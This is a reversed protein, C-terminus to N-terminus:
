AEIGLDEYEPVQGLKILTITNKAALDEPGPAPVNLHPGHPAQLMEEIQPAVSRPAHSASLISYHKRNPALFKWRQRSNLIYITSNRLFLLHLPTPLKCDSPM